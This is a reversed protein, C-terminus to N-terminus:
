VVYHNRHTIEVVQINRSLSPSCYSFENAVVPIQAM